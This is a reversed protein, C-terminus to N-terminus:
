TESHQRVNNYLEGVTTQIIQGTKKNRVSIVTNACVCKGTGNRHGGADGGLDLNEGLVLTLDNRDFNVSQTANGISMFNKASVTKIKIL